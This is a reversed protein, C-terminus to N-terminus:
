LKKANRNLIPDELSATLAMIEAILDAGLGAEVLSSELHELTRKFHTENLGMNRVLEAHSEQMYYAVGESKGCFVMTLFWHQKRHLRESDVNKFFPSTLDDVLLKEHFRAIIDDLTGEDGIRDMLTSM